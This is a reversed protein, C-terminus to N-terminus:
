RLWPLPQAFQLAFLSLLNTTQDTPAYQLHWVEVFVWYIPVQLAFYYAAFVWKKEDLAAGKTFRLAKGRADTVQGETRKGVEGGSKVKMLARMGAALVSVGLQEGGM